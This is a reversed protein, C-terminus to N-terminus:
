NQLLKKIEVKQEIPTILFVSYSKPAKLYQDVSFMCYLM